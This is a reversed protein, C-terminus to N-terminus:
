VYDNFRHSRPRCRNRRVVVTDRQQKRISMLFGQRDHCLDFHRAAHYFGRGSTQVFLAANPPQLHSTDSGHLQEIMEIRLHTCRQIIRDGLGQGLTDFDILAHDVKFKAERQVPFDLLPLVHGIGRDIRILFRDHIGGQGRNRANSDTMCIIGNTEGPAGNHEALGASHAPHILTPARGSGPLCIQQTGHVKHLLYM